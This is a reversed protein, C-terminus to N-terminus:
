PIPQMLPSQLKVLDPMIKGVLAVQGTGQAQTGNQGPTGNSTDKLLGRLQRANLRPQGQDRRAQQMLLIAGAVIASAGSTGGFGMPLDFPRNLNDAALTKISDGWAWCDVLSGFNSVDSLAYRPISDGNLDVDEGTSAGAVTIAGSTPGGPPNYVDLDLGGNGAPQVVIHGAMVVTQIANFVLTETEVPLGHPLIEREILIVGTQSGSSDPRANQSLYTAADTITSALVDIPASPNSIDFCLGKVFTAGPAIGDVIKAGTTDTGGLIIGAVSTGHTNEYPVSPDLRAAPPVRLDRVRSPDICDMVWGMEIDVIWEDNGDYQKSMTNVGVGDPAAARPDAWQGAPKTLMSFYVQAGPLEQFASKLKCYTDMPSGARAPISMLAYNEYELKKYGRVGFPEEKDKEKKFNEEAKAVLRELGKWDKFAPRPALGEIGGLRKVVDSQAFKEWGNLKSLAEVVDKSSASAPKLGPVYVVLTPQIPRAARGRPPPTTASSSKATSERRACCPFLFACLQKLFKCRM